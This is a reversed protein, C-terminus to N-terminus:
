LEYGLKEVQCRRSTMLDLKNTDFAIPLCTEWIACIHVPHKKRVNGKCTECKLLYIDGTEDGLHRCRPVTEARISRATRGIGIM